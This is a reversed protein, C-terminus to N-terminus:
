AATSGLQLSQTKLCSVIKSLSTLKTGRGAQAKIFSEMEVLRVRHCPMMAGLSLTIRKGLRSGAQLLLSTTFM